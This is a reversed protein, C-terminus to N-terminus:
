ARLKSANLEYAWLLTATTIGSNVVYRGYDGADHWGGPCAHAGTKGSSPDFQADGTHCPPPNYKPSDPALSVAVGCRQGTFARMALRFPKAYVDPAVAFTDSAGVGPVDLYYAGPTTLKQSTSPASPTAPTPMPSRNM